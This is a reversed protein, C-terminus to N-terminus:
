RDKLRRGLRHNLPARGRCPGGLTSPSSRRAPPLWPKLREGRVLHRTTASGQRGDVDNQLCPGSIDRSGCGGCIGASARRDRRATRPSRTPRRPQWDSRGSNHHVRAQRYWARAKADHGYTYFGTDPMLWRGYGYLEFTGNDPQDHGSIAPPLCHPALLPCRRDERFRSVPPFCAPSNSRYPMTPSRAVRGHDM